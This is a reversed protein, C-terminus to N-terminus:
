PNKKPPERITGYVPVELTEEEEGAVHITLRESVRGKTKNGPDYTVRLRYVKGEKEPLVDTTIVDNTADVRDITFGADGTGRLVIDRVSPEGPRIMGFSIMQPSVKVRGQVFAYVPVQVTPSKKCNTNVLIKGTLRGTPVKEVLSVSYRAGSETRELEKLLVSPNNVSVERIKLGKGERLKIELSIPERPSDKPVNRFNIYRPLVTVDSIVQGGVSLRVRPNEGDNSEVTVSKKAKGQYGKSKFTVKVEGVGGPPIEKATVL